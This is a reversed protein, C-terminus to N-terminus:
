SVFCVNLDVAPEVFWLRYMTCIVMMMAGFFDNLQLKSSPTLM